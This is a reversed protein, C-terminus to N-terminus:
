PGAGPLVYYLRVAGVAASPWDRAYGPPASGAPVLTAVPMRRSTRTIGDETTNANPGATAGSSCGAAFAVPIAEHGTVLCPPRVGRRGLEVATRAWERHAAATKGVTHVLVALQVAFHAVLAACVLVTVLPHRSPPPTAPPSAPIRTAAAPLPPRIAATPLPSSAPPRAATTTPPRSPRRRSGRDPGSPLRGGGSPDPRRAPRRRWWPTRGRTPPTARGRPRSSSPTLLHTLTTAAPIALLAYAPLLFRPAAYGILFLYPFAATAACALPLATSATRRARAAVALALVALLPLAFWWLTLLPHPLAGTCPRCLTRGGLSRLQDVVALHWGLGGQIQSGDSLRRALGGYSTYAEIVWEAAGAALGALLVLLARRHRRTLGVALLPLTAWVADVPRMWAMLVANGALGWLATREAPARLFCGAAALAAVAVWYNPMAQPGYFLTVWLSAFLAGALALVRGHLLGRWARLALFLALGSLVALYVRLLVTSSSWAAVPAVLLSVGRARPASFFSAPAHGSVQSVYVTEDWGLGLGPGVLVLQALTFLAAVAAAPRSARASGASTRRAGERSVADLTAHASGAM